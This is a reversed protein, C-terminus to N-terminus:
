LLKWPMSGHRARMRICNRTKPLIEWEACAQIEDYYEYGSDVDSYFDEAAEYSNYGFKDGLLGIWEGKSIAANGDGGESEGSDGACSSILFGSDARIFSFFSEKENM